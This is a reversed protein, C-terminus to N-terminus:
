VIVMRSSDEKPLAMLTSGAKAAVMQTLRDKPPARTSVMLILNVKKHVSNIKAATL